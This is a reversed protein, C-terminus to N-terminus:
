AKQSLTILWRTKVRESTSNGFAVFLRRQRQWIMLRSWITATDSHTATVHHISMISDLTKEFRASLPM